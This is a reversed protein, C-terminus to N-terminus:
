GHKTRELTEFCRECFDMDFDEALEEVNDQTIFGVITDDQRVCYTCIHELDGNVWFGVVDDEKIIGM